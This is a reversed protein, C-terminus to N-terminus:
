TLVHANPTGARQGGQSSHRAANGVAATTRETGKWHHENIILRKDEEVRVAVGGNEHLLNRQHGAANGSTNKATHM